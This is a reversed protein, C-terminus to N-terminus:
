NERTFHSMVSGLVIAVTGIGSFIQIYFLIYGFKVPQYVDWGLTTMTRITYDLSNAVSVFPPNFSKALIFDLIAFIVLMETFNILTLIFARIPSSVRGTLVHTHFWYSIINYWRYILLVLVLILFSTHGALNPSVALLTFLIVEVLWWGVVYTEAVSVNGHWEPKLRTLWNLLSLKEFSIYDVMEVLKVVWGDDTGLNKKLLSRAKQRELKHTARLLEKEKKRTEADM